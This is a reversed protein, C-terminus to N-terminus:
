KISQVKPAAPRLIDNKKGDAVIRGNELVIVRDVIDLVRGKHTAIVVTKDKILNKLNTIFVGETQTDMSSTPEDMLLIKSDNLLTRTLCIAQKQGGSLSSGGENLTASFGGQLESAIVDVGTIKSINFIEEDSADPNGFLLNEKLTGSFLAPSQLMVGVHSRLDNPRIQSLDMKDIQAFGATPEQLGAMVKILSSKGSGVKGIVGIKEGPKVTISIKDLASRAVGEFSLSINSLTISGEVPEHKLNQARENENSKLNFLDSLNQYAVTAQNLRGILNTIQGLPSLVRGSLIVCAILSGMTMDAKAILFVGYVVIGVQSIQQGTQAFNSSIQNWFRTEGIVEAQQVVSDKWRKKFLNIGKLTKITELGSLLEVLVSNKNQSDIQANFTKRKIIPQILLGVLIVILVVLAPVAAVWGGLAYLVFLFILIFPLDAFAVLTASAMVDKLSDFEKVVTAISGISRTGILKENRSLHDFLDESVEEDILLGAKDTMSGRMMKMLFDFLIVIAVGITLFLLTDLSENPIVRDYVTMIFFASVLAFLNICMSAIIVQTYKPTQKLVPGWFWHEKYSSFKNKNSIIM